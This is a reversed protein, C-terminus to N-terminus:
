GVAVTKNPKWALKSYIRTKANRRGQLESRRLIVRRTVAPSVHSGQQPQNIYFPESCHSNLFGPGHQCAIGRFLLVHQRRHHPPM